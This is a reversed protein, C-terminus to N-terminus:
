RAWRWEAREAEGEDCFWREGHREDIKTRAYSAQWPMHYIREGSRSVNGKIPRKRQKDAEASEVAGEWRKARFEWPPQNAAAFVGRRGVRAEAEAGVYTDSYKVFAWALGQRLRESLTSVPVGEATRRAVVARYGCSRPRDMALM